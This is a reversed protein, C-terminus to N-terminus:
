GHSQKWEQQVLILTDKTAQTKVITQKSKEDNQFLTGVTLTVRPHTPRSFAVKGSDAELWFCAQFRPSEWGDPARQTPCHKMM